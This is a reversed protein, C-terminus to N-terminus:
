IYTLTVQKLMKANSALIAVLCASLLHAKVSASKLTPQRVARLLTSHTYGATIVAHKPGALLCGIRRLAAFCICNGDLRFVLRWAARLSCLGPRAGINACREMAVRFLLNMLPLVAQPVSGPLWGGWGRGHGQSAVKAGKRRLRSM